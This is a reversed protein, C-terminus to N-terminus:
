LLQTRSGVCLAEPSRGSSPYGPGSSPLDRKESPLPGPVFASRAAPQGRSAAGPGAALGPFPAQLHDSRVSCRYSTVETRERSGKM